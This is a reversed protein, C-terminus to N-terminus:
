KDRKRQFGVDGSTVADSVIGYLIGDDVNNKVNALETRATKGVDSSGAKKILEEYATIAAKRYKEGRVILEDEAVSGNYLMWAWKRHIWWIDENLRAYLLRAKLNWEGKYKNIYDQVRGLVDEPAGLLNKELQFYAAEAAADSKPYDTAVQQYHTGMYRIIIQTPFFQFAGAGYHANMKEAYQGMCAPTKPSGKKRYCEQEADNNVQEAYKDLSRGLWLLAEPKTKSDASKTADVFFDAAEKYQGQNYLSQGQAFDVKDKALAVASVMMLAILIHKM